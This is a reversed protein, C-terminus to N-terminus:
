YDVEISIEASVPTVSMLPDWPNDLREMVWNYATFDGVIIRMPASSGALECLLIIFDGEDAEALFQRYDRERRYRDTSREVDSLWKRLNGELQVDTIASM